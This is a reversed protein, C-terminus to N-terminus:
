TRLLTRYDVQMSACGKVATEVVVIQCFLLRWRGFIYLKVASNTPCLNPVEYIIIRIYKHM